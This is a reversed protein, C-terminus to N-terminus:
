GRARPFSDLFHGLSDSSETQTDRSSPGSLHYDRCSPFFPTPVSAGTVARPLTPSTPSRLPLDLHEHVTGFTGFGSCAPFLSVFETFFDISGTFSPRTSRLNHVTSQGESRSWRKVPSPSPQSSGKSRSPVVRRLRPLFHCTPLLGTRAALPKPVRIYERSSRPTPSRLDFI